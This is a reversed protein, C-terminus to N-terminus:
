RSNAINGRRSVIKIIAVGQNTGETTKYDWRCRAVEWVGSAVGVSDHCTVYNLANGMGWASLAKRIILGFKFFLKM